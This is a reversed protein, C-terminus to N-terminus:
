KSSSYTFMGLGLYLLYKLELSPWNAGSLGSSTWTLIKFVSVKGKFVSMPITNGQLDDVSLSYFDSSEILDVGFTFLLILGFQWLEM